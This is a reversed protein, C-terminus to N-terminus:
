CLPGHGHINGAFIAVTTHTHTHTHAHTRTTYTHIYTHIHHHPPPQLLLTNPALCVKQHSTEKCFKHLVQHEYAFFEAWTYDNNAIHLYEFQEGISLTILDPASDNRKSSSRMKGLATYLATPKGKYIQQSIDIIFQKEEDNSSLIPPVASAAASSSHHASGPPVSGTSQPTATGTISGANTAPPQPTLPIGTAGAATSPSHLLSSTSPSDPLSSTSSHPSSFTSPSHPSSSTTNYDVTDAIAQHKTILAVAKEAVLQDLTKTPKLLDPHVFDLLPQFPEKERMQVITLGNGANFVAVVELITGPFLILEEEPSSSFEKISVLSRATIDFMTRPGTSGLFQENQLVDICDTTSNFSWWTVVRGKTFQTSLDLKVGRKVTGQRLPLVYIASLFGKIFYFYPVLSLRNEDRLLKNLKPYFPSEHTYFNVFMALDKTMGRPGYKPGLTDWNMEVFQRAIYVSAGLLQFEPPYPLRKQGCLVKVQRIAIDLNVVNTQSLGYIPSLLNRNKTSDRPDYGGVFKNVSTATM